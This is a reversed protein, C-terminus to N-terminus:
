EGVSGENPFKPTFTKETYYLVSEIGNGVVADSPRMGAHPGEVNKYAVTPYWTDQNYVMEYYFKYQRPSSGANLLEYQPRLMLWTGTAGGRFEADNIKNAWTDVLDDPDDTEEICEFVIIQDARFVDISGGQTGSGDAGSYSVTIPNGDKDIESKIQQLEAGGRIITAHPRFLEYDITVQCVHEGNANTELFEYKRNVVKVDPKTIEDLADGPQPMDGADLVENLFDSTIDTEVACKAVRTARIIEGFQEEASVGYIQDIRVRIPM